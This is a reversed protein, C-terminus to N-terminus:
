RRRLLPAPPKGITCGWRIFKNGEADQDRWVNLFDEDAIIIRGPKQVSGATALNKKDGGAIM